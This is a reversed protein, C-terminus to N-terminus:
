DELIAPLNPKVMSALEVADWNTLRICGHSQTHGVQSPEPTGHIGYHEKSLDIWVLGVPNNPGPQLKANEDPNKADWFLKASYHFPPNRKVGLIKWTGVPLPDHESGISATYWALLKGAADFAQVCTGSKSVTVKAAQGPPLTLANPVTVQEGAKGFDKDPNLTQLLKPSSRFKEGMAELPSQFSLAPLKAKDMMEKPIAIFPGAVDPESIAFTMLVPAKDQNLADWTASDLQGSPELGRAQQFARVTRELNRGFSGDIEGCSFHARALLVQVRVVASGKAGAALTDKHDPSNIAAADYTAPQPRSVRDASGKRRKAAGAPSLLVACLGLTLWLRLV